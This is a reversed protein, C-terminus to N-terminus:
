KKILDLIAAKISEFNVDEHRTYSSKGEVMGFFKKVQTTLGSAGVQIHINPRKFEDVGNLQEILKEFKAVSAPNNSVLKVGKFNPQNQTGNNQVMSTRM